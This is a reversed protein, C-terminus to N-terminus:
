SAAAMLKRVSGQRFALEQPLRGRQALRDFAGHV